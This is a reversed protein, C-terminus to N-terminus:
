FVMEDKVQEFVFVGTNFANLKLDKQFNVFGM